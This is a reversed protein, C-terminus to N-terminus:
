PLASLAPLGGFFGTGRAAGRMTEEKELRLIECDTMATATAMRKIQGALCGEGFFDGPALIAIVAEKGQKSVVTIKLKGKQVYFIADAQDGQSFVSQGKEFGM